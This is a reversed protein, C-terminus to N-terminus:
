FGAAALGHSNSERERCWTHEVFRAEVVKECESRVAEVADGVGLPYIRAALMDYHAHVAERAVAAIEVLEGLVEGAPSAADHAHVDDAAAVAVPELVLLVVSERLIKGVGGCQEGPHGRRRVFDRKQAPELSRAHPLSDVPDSGRHAAQDPHHERRLGIRRDAAQHQVVDPRQHRPPRQRPELERGGAGARAKRAEGLDLAMKALGASRETGQPVPLPPPEGRVPRPAALVSLIREGVVRRDDTRHAAAVRADFEAAVEKEADVEPSGPVRHLARGQNQAPPLGVQQGRGRGPPHLLAPRPDLEDFEGSDAM